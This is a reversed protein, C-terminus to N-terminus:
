QMADQQPNFFHSRWGLVEVLTSTLPLADHSVRGAAWLLPLQAHAFNGSAAADGNGRQMEVLGLAEDLAPAIRAVLAAIGPIHQAPDGDDLDRLAGTNRELGDALRQRQQRVAARRRGLVPAPQRGAPLRVQVVADGAQAPQAVVEAVADAAAAQRDVGTGQAVRAVLEPLLPGPWSQEFRVSAPGAAMLGPPGAAAISATPLTQADSGGM